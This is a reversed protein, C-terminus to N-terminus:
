WGSPYWGRTYLWKAAPNRPALMALTNRALLHGQRAARKRFEESKMSDQPFGRSGTGYLLSLEFQADANGCDASHKLIREFESQSTAAKWPQSQM